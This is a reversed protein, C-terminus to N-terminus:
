VPSGEVLDLQNLLADFENIYSVYAPTGEIAQVLGQEADVAIHAKYGYVCRKGRKLWRADPDKSEEVKLVPKPPCEEPSEGGTPEYEVVKKHRPRSHADVLTADV